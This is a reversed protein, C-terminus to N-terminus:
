ASSRGFNQGSIKLTYQIAVRNVQTSCMKHGRPCSLRLYIPGAYFACLDKRRKWLAPDLDHSPNWLNSDNQLNLQSPTAWFSEQYCWAVQRHSSYSNWTLQCIIDVSVPNVRHWNTPNPGARIQLEVASGRGSTRPQHIISTNMWCRGKCSACAHLVSHEWKLGYWRRTWLVRWGLNPCLFLSWFLVRPSWSSRFHTYHHSFYHM